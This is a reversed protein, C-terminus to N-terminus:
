KEACGAAGLFPITGNKINKLTHKFTSKPWPNEASMYKKECKPCM